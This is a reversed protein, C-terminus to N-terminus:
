LYGLNYYSTQFSTATRFKSRAYELVENFDEWRIMEVGPTDFNPNGKPPLKFTMGNM